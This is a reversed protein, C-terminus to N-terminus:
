KNTPKPDVKLVAAKTATLLDIQKQLRASRKVQNQWSQHYFGTAIALVVCLALFCLLVAKAPILQQDVPRKLDNM